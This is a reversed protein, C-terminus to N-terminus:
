EPPITSRFGGTYAFDGPEFASNSMFWVQLTTTDGADLEVHEWGVFRVVGEPTYTSYTRSGGSGGGSGAAYEHGWYEEFEPGRLTAVFRAAVAGDPHCFFRVSGEYQVTGCRYPPSDPWPGFPPTEMCAEDSSVTTIPMEGCLTYDGWGASERDLRECIPHDFCPADYLCTRPLDWGGSSSGSGCGGGDTPASDSAADLSTDAGGDTASMDRQAMDRQAMDRHGMDRYGGDDRAGDVVGADMGGDLDPGSDGCGLVVIAVLRVLIRMGASNRPSSSGNM